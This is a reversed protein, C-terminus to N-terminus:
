CQRGQRFGFQVMQPSPSLGAARWSGSAYMGGLNGQAATCAQDAAKRYWSVAAAKDMPLRQGLSYMTDLNGQAYVSAQAALPRFFRVAIAYDDHIVADLSQNLQPAWRAVTPAAPNNVQAAATLAACLLAPVIMVAILGLKM